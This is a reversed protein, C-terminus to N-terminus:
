GKGNLRKLRDIAERRTIEGREYMYLIRDAERKDRAQIALRLLEGLRERMLKVKPHPM